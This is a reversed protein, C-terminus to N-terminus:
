VLKKSPQFEEIDEGSINIISAKRFEEISVFIIQFFYSGPGPMTIDCNWTGEQDFTGFHCDYREQIETRSLKCAHKIEILNLYRSRSKKVLDVNTLLIPM